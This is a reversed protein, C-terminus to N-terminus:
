KGDDPAEEKVDRFVSIVVDPCVIYCSGCGLCQLSPDCFAAAHYGTANFTEGIKILQRPCAATCLTCGKCREADIEIRGKATRKEAM